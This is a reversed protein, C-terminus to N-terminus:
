VTDGGKFGLFDHLEDVSCPQLEPESAIINSRIINGDADFEQEYSYFRIEPIESYVLPHDGALDVSFYVPENNVLTFSPTM